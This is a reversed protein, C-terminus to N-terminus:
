RVNLVKHMQISIRADVFWPHEMLEMCMSLSEPDFETVNESSSLPALFVRTKQPKVIYDMYRRAESLNFDKDVMFRIEDAREISTPLCGFKPSCAIYMYNDLMWSPIDITGSTEIHVTIEEKRLPEILQPLIKLHMLPEGGTLCVHKIGKPIQDYIERLSLRESVNFDTDCPFKRGDFTTCEFAEKGSPLIPMLPDQPTKFNASTRTALYKGVTCGALRIFTMRTGAYRGEGHISTFIEAIPYKIEENYMPPSWERMIRRMIWPM